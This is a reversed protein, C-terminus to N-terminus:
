ARKKLFSTSERSLLRPAQSSWLTTERGAGRCRHCSWAPVAPPHATWGWWAWRRGCLCSGMAESTGASGRQRHPYSWCQYTKTSASLKTGMKLLLPYTEVWWLPALHLRHSTCQNLELDTHPLLPRIERKSGLLMVVQPGQLKWHWYFNLPQQQFPLQVSKVWSITPNPGSLGVM